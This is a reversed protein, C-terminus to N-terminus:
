GPFVSTLYTSRLLNVHGNHDPSPFGVTGSYSTCLMIFLFLGVINADFLEQAAQTHLGNTVWIAKATEPPLLAWGQLVLRLFDDMLGFLAVSLNQGASLNDAFIINRSSFTFGSISDWIGLWNNIHHAPFSLVRWLSSIGSGRRFTRCICLLVAQHIVTHCFSVDALFFSARVHAKVPFSIVLGWTMFLPLWTPDPQPDQEAGQEEVEPFLCAFACFCGCLSAEKSDEGWWRHNMFMSWFHCGEQYLFWASSDGIWLFPASFATNSEIYSYMDACAFPLLYFLLCGLRSTFLHSDRWQVELRAPFIFCICFPAASEQQRFYRVALFAPLFISTKRKRAYACHRSWPKLTCHWTVLDTKEGDMLMVPATIESMDPGRSPSYPYKVPLLWWSTTLKRDLHLSGLAPGGGGLLATTPFVACQARPGKPWLLATVSQCDKPACFSYMVVEVRSFVEVEPFFFAWSLVVVNRCKWLSLVSLIIWFVMLM